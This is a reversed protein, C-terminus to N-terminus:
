RSAPGNTTKPLILAEQPFATLAKSGPPMWKLQLVRPLDRAVFRLDFRHIGATLLVAGENVGRHCELVIAQDIALCSEDDAFVSFWYEGDKEIPLFARATLTFPDRSGGVLSVVKEVNFSDTTLMKLSGSPDDPDRTLNAGTSFGVLVGATRDTPSLARGFNVAVHVATATRTAQQLARQRHIAREVALADPPRTAWEIEAGRFNLRFGERTQNSADFVQLNSANSAVGHVFVYREVWVVFPSLDAEPQVARDLMRLLDSQQFLRDDLVDKPIGAGIIVLPVRAKASEGFKEREALRIPAMKRHDGTIILLGNEFFGRKTLQEHLWWLEDQVYAWVNQETDAKQLPDVYPPHSSATVATLFVPTGDARPASDLRALLEEYLVHDNPSEFAFRPADKLRAIEHQGGAAGFGVSRSKVYADMSIFQLPVSTVFECRYGLRRFEDTISRQRAYEAFTNTSATPFHMAPVGSLLAVIGGESAEFNAFFNRFLMGERSLDDFRPLLNSLGSTRRSDVASLSELIVLILNKGTRAFPADFLAEYERRYTAFDGANYRSAPPRRAGWLEKGLLFVSGTYKHLHSPIAQAPVALPLLLFVLASGPILQAGKLPVPLKLFLSSAGVVILAVFSVSLFGRVVWWEGTFQRIDSLQLRANLTIVALADVLYFALLGITLLVPVARWARPLVAEVFALIGLAGIVPLDALLLYGPESVDFGSLQLSLWVARYVAVCVCLLLPGLRLPM